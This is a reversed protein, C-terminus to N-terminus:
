IEQRQIPNRTMASARLFGIEIKPHESSTVLMSILIYISVFSKHSEATKQGVLLWQKLRYMNMDCATKIKRPFFTM